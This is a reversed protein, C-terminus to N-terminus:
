IIKVEKEVEAQNFLDDSQSEQFMVMTMVLYIAVMKEIIIYKYFLNCLYTDKLIIMM